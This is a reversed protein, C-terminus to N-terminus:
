DEKTNFPFNPLDEPQIIKEATVSHTQRNIENLLISHQNIHALM